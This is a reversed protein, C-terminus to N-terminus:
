EESLIKLDNLVQDNDWIMTHYTRAIRGSKDILLLQIAHLTVGNTNFSAMINLGKFFKHEPDTPPRLVMTNEDTDLRNVKAYELLREPNDHQSDYSTLLLRVKQLLRAKVLNRRLEAMTSTVLKCKNPNTCRTYFFSIVLPQGVLSDLRIEKNDQRTFICGHPLSPRAEPAKWGSSFEGGSSANASTQSYGDEDLMKCCTATEPDKVPVIIQNQVRESSNSASLGKKQNLSNSQDNQCGILGLCLMGLILESGSIRYQWRIRSGLLTISASM